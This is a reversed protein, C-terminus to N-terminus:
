IFGELIMRNTPNSPKTSPPTASTSSKRLAEELAYLAVAGLGGISEKWITALVAKRTGRETRFVLTLYGIEIDPSDIVMRVYHHQLEDFPFSWILNGEPLDVLEIFGGKSLGVSIISGPEIPLAGGLFFVRNVAFRCKESWDLPIPLNQYTLSAPHVFLNDPLEM